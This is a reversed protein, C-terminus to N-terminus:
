GDVSPEAPERKRGLIQLLFNAPVTDTSVLIITTKWAGGDAIQSFTRSVVAALPDKFRPIPLSSSAAAFTSSNIAGQAPNPALSGNVSGILNLGSGNGTCGCRSTLLILLLPTPRSCKGPQRGM